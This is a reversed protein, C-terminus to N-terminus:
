RRQAHTLFETYGERVMDDRHIFRLSCDKISYRQGGADSSGDPFVYGFHTDSRISRVEIRIMGCTTHCRVIINEYAIPKRFTPWGCDPSCRDCSAFLPEGSIIDVYIGPETHNNHDHPCPCKGKTEGVFRRQETTRNDILEQSKRHRM